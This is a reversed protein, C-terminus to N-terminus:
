HMLSAFSTGRMCETRIEALDTSLSLACSRSDDPAHCCVWIHVCYLSLRPRLASMQTCVQWKTLANLKRHAADDIAGASVGAISAPAAPKARAKSKSASRKRKKNSSASSGGADSRPATTRVSAM